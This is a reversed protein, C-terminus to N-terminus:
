GTVSKTIKISLEDEISVADAPPAASPKWRRSSKAAHTTSSSSSVTKRFPIRTATAVNSDSAAISNVNSPGSAGPATALLGNSTPSKTVTPPVVLFAPLTPLTTENEDCFPRRAAWILPFSPVTNLAGIASKIRVSSVGTPGCCDDRNPLSTASLIRSSAYGCTSPTTEYLLKAAPSALTRASKSSALSDTDPYRPVLVCIKIMESPLTRDSLPLARCSSCASSCCPTYWCSVTLSQVTPLPDCTLWAVRPRTADDLAAKPATSFWADTHGLRAAVNMAESVDHSVVVWVVVPVVLWVVVGQASTRASTMKTISPRSGSRFLACHKGADCTAFRNAVSTTSAM